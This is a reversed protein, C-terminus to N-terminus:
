IEGKFPILCSKSKSKSKKKKKGHKIFITITWGKLHRKEIKVKM